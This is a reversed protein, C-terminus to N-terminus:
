IIWCSRHATASPRDPSSSNQFFEPKDLYRFDTLIAQKEILRTLSAEFDVRVNQSLGQVANSIGNAALDTLLMLGMILLIRSLPTNNMLGDIAIKPTAVSLLSDTLRPLAQMLLMLLFYAKGYKFAPRLFFMLNSMTTKIKKVSARREPGNTPTM